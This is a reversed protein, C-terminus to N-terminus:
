RGVAWTISDAVAQPDDLMLLHAASHLLPQAGLMGARQLQRSIWRRRERYLPWGGWRCLLLRAPVGLSPESDIARLLEAAEARITALEVMTGNLQRRVTSPDVRQRPPRVADVRATGVAFILWRAIRGSLEAGLRTGNFRDVLRVAMAPPDWSAAEQGPDSSDVLVVASVHRPRQWAYAQALMGGYSHGVLVVPGSRGAARLVADLVAFQDALGAPRHHWASSGGMGPRDVLVLCAHPM